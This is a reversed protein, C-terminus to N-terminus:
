LLNDWPNVDTVDGEDPLAWFAEDLARRDWIKRGDIRKPTPMRGETVLQDFKTASIGIYLSAGVRSLGRPELGGPLMPRKPM